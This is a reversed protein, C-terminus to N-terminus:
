CPSVAGVAPPVDVGLRDAWRALADWADAAVEVGRDLQRRRMAQGREGPLRVPQSPNVPASAHCRDAIATMQRHLAHTGAFGAPDIVQVFLTAGYPPQVAEARGHGALGTTFAEVAMALGYGKHGTDHGGLPLLTGRRPPVLVSPDDTPEGHEDMLWRGPLLTGAHAAQMSRTNTTISMSVDVTIADRGTPIGVALPNPSFVPDLGGFPAVSAGSPGSSMLLLMLGDDAVRQAYVALAAIHHSRRISVAGLGFQRARESAWAIARLMLWPGPLRRGDWCAAAGGERLVQPEGHITLNGDEIQALYTPLLQVGHTTHGLLDGQVLVEGVAAAKDAPMGARELLCRAFTRLADAAIRRVTM